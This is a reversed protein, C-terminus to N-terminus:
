WYLKVGLQVIRPDRASNYEGFFTGLPLTSGSPRLNNTIVAQNYNAFIANGTFFGGTPNPVSINTGANIGQFQTHNFVNFAELRLQLKRGRDPDGLSFNKFISLDLQRIGDGRVRGDFRPGNGAIQDGPDSYAASNFFFVSQPNGSASANASAAAVQHISASSRPDGSIDPRQNGDALRGNQGAVYLTQKALIGASSAPGPDKGDIKIVKLEGGAQAFIQAGCAAISGTGDSGSCAAM